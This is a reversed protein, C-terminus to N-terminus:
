SVNDDKMTSDDAQLLLRSLADSQKQHHVNSSSTELYTDLRNTSGSISTPGFIEKLRQLFTPNRKLQAEFARQTRFNRTQLIGHKAFTMSQIAFGIMTTPENNSSTLNEGRNERFSSGSTYRHRLWWPSSKDDFILSNCKKVFFFPNEKRIIQEITLDLLSAQPSQSFHRLSESLSQKCLKIDAVSLTIADEATSQNISKKHHKHKKLNLNNRRPTIQSLHFLFQQM